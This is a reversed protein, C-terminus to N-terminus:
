VMSFVKNWYYDIEHYEIHEKGEFDNYKRKIIWSNDIIELSYMLWENSLLDIENSSLLGLVCRGTRVITNSGEPDSRRSIRLIQIDRLFSNDLPLNLKLY